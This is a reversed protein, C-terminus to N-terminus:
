NSQKKHQVRYESPSIGYKRKFIRSLYDPSEYGVMRSIEEINYNTSELFVVSHHLKLNQIISSLNKNLNRKFMKSIYVTTYHFKESLIPLTVTAYNYEVYKMMMPFDKNFKITDNSDYLHITNGFERLIEGFFMNILCIAMINSYDDNTNSEDFIQQILNQYPLTNEINFSLYNRSKNEFLSHKFFTSLIDNTSLLQWFITDFTSKRINICLILSDGEVEVLHPSDSAIIILDGTYFNKQENEFFQTYSGSYVYNLEFYDHSHFESKIYPLHITTFVDKNNPLMNIEKIVNMNYSSLIAIADLFLTYAHNRFEELLLFDGSGTFELPTNYLRENDQFIRLIDVFDTTEGTEHFRDKAFSAIEGLNSYLTQKM